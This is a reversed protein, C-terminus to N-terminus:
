RKRSAQLNAAAEWGAEFAAKLLTMGRQDVNQLHASWEAWAAEADAPLPKDGATSERVIRAANVNPDPNHDHDSPM